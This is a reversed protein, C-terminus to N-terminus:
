DNVAYRKMSKYNEINGNLIFFNALKINAFEINKNM